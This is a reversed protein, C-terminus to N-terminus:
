TTRTPATRRARTTPTTRTSCSRRRGRAGARGGPLRRAHGAGGGQGVARHGAALHGRAHLVRPARPRRVAPRRQHPHRQRPRPGRRHAPQPRGGPAVHRLWARRAAAVGGRLGVPGPAGQHDVDRLRQGGPLVRGDPQRRAPGAGLHRVRGRHGHDATREHSSGVLGPRPTLPIPMQSSRTTGCRTSADRRLRSTPTSRACTQAPSAALDQLDAEAGPEVGPEVGGSTGSDAGDLGGVHGPPERLLPAPAAVYRHGARAQVALVEGLRVRRVVGGQHGEAEARDLVRLQRQPLYAAHHPGTTPEVEQLVSQGGLRAHASAAAGRAPAAGCAPPQWRVRSTGAMSARAPHVGSPSFPHSSCSYRGPGATPRGQVMQGQADRGRGSTLSPRAPLEHPGPRRRRRHRHHHHHARHVGPPRPIKGEPPDRLTM